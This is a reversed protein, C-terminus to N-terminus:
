CTFLMNTRVSIMVTSAARAAGDSASSDAATPVVSNIRLRVDCALAAACISEPPSADLMFHFSVAVGSM